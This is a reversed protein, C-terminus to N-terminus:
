EVRGDIEDEFTVAAHEGLASHQHVLGILALRDPRQEMELDRYPISMLVPGAMRSDDGPLEPEHLDIRVGTDIGVDGGSGIDGGIDIGIDVGIRVGIDIGFVIDVGVSSRAGPADLVGSASFADPAGPVGFAGM